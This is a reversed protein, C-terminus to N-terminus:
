HENDRKWVGWKCSCDMTEMCVYKLCYLCFLIWFLSFQVISCTPFLISTESISFCHLCAVLFHITFHTIDALVFKKGLFSIDGLLL